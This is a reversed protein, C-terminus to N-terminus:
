ECRPFDWSQVHTCHDHVHSYFFHIVVSVPRMNFEPSPVKPTDKSSNFELCVNEIKEKSRCLQRGM